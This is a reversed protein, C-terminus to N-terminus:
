QISWCNILVKEGHVNEEISENLNDSGNSENSNVALKTAM